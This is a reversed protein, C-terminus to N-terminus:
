SSFVMEIGHNTSWAIHRFTGTVEGNVMTVVKIMDEFGSQFMSYRNKGESDVFVFKLSSRGRSINTFRLTAAFEGVDCMDATYHEHTADYDLFERVGNYDRYPASTVIKPKKKAM